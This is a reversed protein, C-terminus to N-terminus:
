YTCSCVSKSELCCLLLSLSLYLSFQLHEGYFSSSPSYCISQTSFIGYLGTIDQLLKRCYYNFIIIRYEM